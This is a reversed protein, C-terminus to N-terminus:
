IGIKLPMDNSETGADAVSVSAWVRFVSDNWPIFTQLPISKYRLWPFESFIVTFASGSM